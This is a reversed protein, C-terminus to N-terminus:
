DCAQPGTRFWSRTKRHHRRRPKRARTPLSSMTPRKRSPRRSLRCNLTRRSPPGPPRASPHAPHRNPSRQSRRSRPRTQRHRFLKLSLLKRAAASCAGGAVPRRPSPTSPNPPRPGEATETKEDTATDVADERNATLEKRLPMRHRRRDAKADTANTPQAPLEADAPGPLEADAPQAPLEPGTTLDGSDAPQDEM